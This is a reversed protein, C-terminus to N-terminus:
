CKSLDKPKAIWASLSELEHEKDEDNTSKKNDEWESIIAEDRERLLQSSYERKAGVVVKMERREKEEKSRASTLTYVNQDFIFYKLMLKVYEIAILGNGLELTLLGYPTIVIFTCLVIKLDFNIPVVFLIFAAIAIFILMIICQRTGLGLFKIGENVKRPIHYIKRKEM